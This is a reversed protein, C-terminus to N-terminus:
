LSRRRRAAFGFQVQRGPGAPGARLGIRPPQAAQAHRAAPSAAPPGERGRGCGPRARGAGARAKAQFVPGGDFASGAGLPRLLRRGTGAEGSGLATDNSKWDRTFVVTNVSPVLTSSGNSGAAM